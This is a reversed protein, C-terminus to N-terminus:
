TNKINCGASVLNELVIRTSSILSQIHENDYSIVKHCVGSLSIKQLCSVSAKESFLYKKSHCLKPMDSTYSIKPYRVHAGNICVFLYLQRGKKKIDLLIFKPKTLYIRFLLLSSIPFTGQNINVQMTCSATRGSTDTATATITSSGLNMTATSQSQSPFVTAGTSSYAVSVAGCNDTATAPFNVSTSTSGCQLQQNVNQACTISPPIDDM